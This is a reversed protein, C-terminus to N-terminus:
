PVSSARRAQRVRRACFRGCSLSVLCTFPRSAASPKPRVELHHGPLELCPRTSPSTVDGEPRPRPHVPPPPRGPAAASTWPLPASTGAPCRTALRPFLDSLHAGPAVGHCTGSAGGPKVQGCVPGSFRRRGFRSGPAPRRRGQEQWRRSVTNQLRSPRTRRQKKLVRNKM